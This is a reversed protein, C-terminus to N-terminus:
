LVRKGSGNYAICAAEMGQRIDEYMKLSAEAFKKLKDFMLILNSQISSLNSQMGVESTKSSKDEQGDQEVGSDLNKSGKKRPKQDEDPQPSMGHVDVTLAKVANLVEGAPLTDFAASWDRCLVFIPPALARRPSFPNRGRRTSKEVPIRVCKTLWCNLAQVYSKQADLYNTFSASLCSMENELNLAADRRSDTHAGASTKTHYALSITIYQAHHCELMIKWMRISGQILELLQPQLEEDRLKEIRKSISELAQIAVNTRSYLDKVAARTKDIVHKKLDRAFQHRLQGCKRDYERRVSESAKVEDHLKREWAYMRDLTSSHSGSIMCFDEVFDSSSDDIDDKPAFVLPSRSSFSRSSTSRHWSIVKTVLQPGDRFETCTPQVKNAELMRSVEKGAECARQFWNKIEEISSLFDKARHTIFESADERESAMEKEDVANGEKRSQRVELANSASPVEEAEAVLMNEHGGDDHVKSHKKPNRAEQKEPPTGTDLRESPFGSFTYAHAIRSRQNQSSRIPSNNDSSEYPMSFGDGGITSHLNDSDEVISSIGRHIWGPLHDRLSYLLPCLTIPIKWSGLLALSPRDRSSLQLSWLGGSKMFSVTSRSQPSLFIPSLPSGQQPSDIGGGVPAGGPLPSPFNSSHSPSSKDAFAIQPETTETTAYTSTSSEPMAEAKAFRLLSDGAKHLSQIYAVHAAALGYRRDIVIKMFKKREKCLLLAEDKEAKSSACGM